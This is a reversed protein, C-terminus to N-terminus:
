FKLAIGVGNQNILIASSEIFGTQKPTGENILNVATRIKKSFGIKVPIAAIIMVGGIIAPIPSVQVPNNVPYSINSFPQREYGAFETEGKAYKYSFYIIGTLGGYLLVNGITKKSRGANYLELVKANDSFLNRIQIPSVEVGRSDFVRGNGKYIYTEQSFTTVSYLAFLLLIIKKM